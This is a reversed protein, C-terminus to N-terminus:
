WNGKQYMKAKAISKSHVNVGLRVHQWDYDYVSYYNKLFTNGMLFRRDEPHDKDKGSRMDIVCANVDKDTEEVHNIDDKLYGRSNLEFVSQDFVFKIPDLKKYIKDCSTNNFYCVEIDNVDAARTCIMNVEHDDKMKKAIENVTKDFIVQPLIMLTTGSDIVALIPDEEEPDMLMQNGYKFGRGNVGWYMTPNLQGKLLEM